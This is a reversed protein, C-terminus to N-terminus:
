LLKDLAAKLGKEDVVASNISGGSLIFTTPLQSVNYTAPVTSAAGLGDCVNIWELKQAKIVSAWEAKDPSVCVAYIELGRSKYADYLPKLVDLNFMKQAADSASWFHLLVVKADVESLARKEGKNDTINIEPYDLTKASQIRTAFELQRERRSAEKDLAKVYRSDPYVTKLSDCANRFHIADTAQSFVPSQADLQAFLVPVVTLSYPHAMIFKVSSRYFDVYTKGLEAPDTLTDMKGIFDAYDLSTERLLSSGESGTVSYNGWKDADVVAKEGQELLLGAIQVDDLFLYVFEPQGKQVDLAYTLHGSADTKVTDLVSFSNIDLLKVVVDAEPAGAITCEFSTKPSCAALCLAAALVFRFSKM